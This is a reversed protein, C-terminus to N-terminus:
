ADQSDKLFNNKAITEATLASKIDNVTVGRPDNVSYATVFKCTIDDIVKSGGDVRPPFNGIRQRRSTWKKRRGCYKM